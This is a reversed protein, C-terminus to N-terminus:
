PLLTRRRGGGGRPVNERMTRESEGRRGVWSSPFLSRVVKRLYRAVVPETRGAEEGWKPASKWSSRGVGSAARGRAM